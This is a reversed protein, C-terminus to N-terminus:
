AYVPFVVPRLPFRLGRFRNLETVLNSATPSPTLTGSARLSWSSLLRGRQCCLATPTLPVGSNCSQDATPTRSCPMRYSIRAFRPLGRCRRPTSDPYAVHRIPDSCVPAPSDSRNMTTQARSLRACTGQIWCPRRLSRRSSRVPLRAAFPYSLGHQRAAKSSWCLSCLLSSPRHCPTPRGSM